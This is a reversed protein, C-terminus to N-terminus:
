GQGEKYKERKKDPHIMLLVATMNDTSAEKAALVLDRAGTEATDASLIVQLMERESLANHVGDSTLCLREGTRMRRLVVDAEASPAAGVARYLAGSAPDIHPKTLVRLRGGSVLSLRSDGISIYYLEFGRLIGAVLTTAMGNYRTDASSEASVARNASNLAEGLLSVVTEKAAQPPLARWREAVTYAFIDTALRSARGGGVNGGVGDCLMFLYSKEDLRRLLFVDQNEERHEGKKSYGAIDIM